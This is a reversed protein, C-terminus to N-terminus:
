PRTEAPGRVPQAPEADRLREGTADDFLSVHEPAVSVVVEDGAVLHGSGAIRASLAAGGTRLWVLSDAGMPDILEITAPM